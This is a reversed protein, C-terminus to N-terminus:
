QFVAFDLAQNTTMQPLELTRTRLFGNAYGTAKIKMFEQPISPNTGFIIKYEIFSIPRGTSIDNTLIDRLMSLKLTCKYNVCNTGSISSYFSSFSM